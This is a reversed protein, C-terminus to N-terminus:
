KVLGHKKAIGQKIKEGIEEIDKETLRSKSTLKEMLEIKYLYDAMSNRALESWNVEKHKELRTKLDDPIRLTMNAM